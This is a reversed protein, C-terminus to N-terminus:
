CLCVKDDKVLDACARPYSQKGLLKLICTRVYTTNNMRAYYYVEKSNVRYKCIYM